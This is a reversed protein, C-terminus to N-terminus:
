EPRKRTGLSLALAVVVGLACSSLAWPVWPPRFRVTFTQDGGDTPLEWYRGEAERLPHERGDAEARWYRHYGEVVRLYGAPASVRLRVTHPDVREYTVRASGAAGNATATPEDVWSARPCRTASRTSGFLSSIEPLLGAGRLAVLDEPLSRFSLVWRVNASRLRDHHERYRTPLREAPTM